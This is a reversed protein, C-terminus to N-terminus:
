QGLIWYKSLTVTVLVLVLKMTMVDVLEARTVLVSGENVVTVHAESAWAVGQRLFRSASATMAAAETVETWAHAKFIMILNVIHFWEDQNSRKWTAVSDLGSSDGWASYYLSSIFNCCHLGDARIHPQRWWQVFMRRRIIHDHVLSRFSLPWEDLSHGVRHNRRRYQGYTYLTSIDLLQRNIIIWNNM